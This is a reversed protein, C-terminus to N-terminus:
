LESHQDSDGFQSCLEGLNKKKLDSSGAGSGPGVFHEISFFVRFYFNYVFKEADGIGKKKLYDDIEELRTDGKGDLMPSYRESTEQFGPNKKEEEYKQTIEKIIEGSLGFTNKTINLINKFESLVARGAENPSKDDVLCPIDAGAVFKQNLSRLIKANKEYKDGREQVSVAYKGYDMINHVVTYGFAAAAGAKVLAAALGSEKTYSDTLRYGCECCNFHFIMGKFKGKNEIAWRNDILAYLNGAYTNAGHCHFTVYKYGGNLIANKVEQPAIRCIMQQQDSKAPIFDCGPLKKTNKFWGRWTNLLVEVNSDITKGANHTTEVNIVLVRNGTKNGGSAGLVTRSLSSERTFYSVFNGMYQNFLGSFAWIEEGKSAQLNYTHKHYFTKQGSNEPKIETCNDGNNVKLYLLVTSGGYIPDNRQATEYIFSTLPTDKTLKISFPKEKAMARGHMTTLSENNDYIFQLKNICGDCTAGKIETLRDAHIVYSYDSYWTDNETIMEKIECQYVHSIAFLVNVPKGYKGTKDGPQADADSCRAKCRIGVLRHGEDATIEYRRKDGCFRDEPDEGFTYQKKNTTVKINWTFAGDFSGYYTNYGSIWSFKTIYEDDDFCSEILRGDACGHRQSLEPDHDYIFQISNILGDGVTIRISTVKQGARAYEGDSYIKGNSKEFRPDNSPKKMLESIFKEKVQPM